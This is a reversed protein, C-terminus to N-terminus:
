WHPSSQSTQDYHWDNIPSHPAWEIPEKKVPGLLFTVLQIPIPDWDGMPARADIPTKSLLSLLICHHNIDKKVDLNIGLCEFSSFFLLKTRNWGFNPQNWSPINSIHFSFRIPASFGLFPKWVLRFKGWSILGPIVGYVVYVYVYVYLIWSGREESSSDDRFQACIESM